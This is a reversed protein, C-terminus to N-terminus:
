LPTAVMLVLPSVILLKTACNFYRIMLKYIRTVNNQAKNFFYWKNMSGKERCRTQIIVAAVLMWVILLVKMVLGLIIREVLFIILGLVTVVVTNM